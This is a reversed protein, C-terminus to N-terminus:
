NVEMSHCSNAAGHASRPKVAVAARPPSSWRGVEFRGITARICKVDNVVREYDRNM